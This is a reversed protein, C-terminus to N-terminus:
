RRATASTSGPATTRWPCSSTGACWAFFDDLIADLERARRATGASAATNGHARWGMEPYVKVGVFGRTLVADQVAQVTSRGTASAYGLDLMGAYGVVINLGLALLVYIMADTVAHVTQAQLWRDLFPYGLLAVVLLTAPLRRVLRSETM